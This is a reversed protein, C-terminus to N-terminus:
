SPKDFGRRCYKWGKSRTFFYNSFIISGGSRRCHTFHRTWGHKHRRRNVAFIFGSGQLHGRRNCLSFTLLLTGNIRFMIIITTPGIKRLNNGTLYVYPVFSGLLQVFSSTCVLVFSPSRFLSFKFISRNRSSEIQDTCLADLVQM